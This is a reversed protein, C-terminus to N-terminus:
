VEVDLTGRNDIVGFSTRVILTDAAVRTVVVRRTCPQCDALDGQLQEPTMNKIDDIHFYRGQMYDPIRSMLKEEQMSNRFQAAAPSRGWGM